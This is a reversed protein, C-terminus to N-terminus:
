HAPPLALVSCSDHTVRRSVSNFAHLGGLRRSGIVVITAKTSRVASLIVAAPHGPVILSDSSHLQSLSKVQAQIRHPHMRSEPGLAHVLTIPADQDLALSAAMSVIEDSGELGDSAVMLRRGQLPPKFSARVFLTPTTFHRLTVSSVGGVLMDGFWSTAPGGLALLDFGAARELIVKVPPHGPDILTAAPVGADDAIRRAGDLVRSVRAPGIAATAHVGSGAAATVALLTLSGEPGALCAAMRVAATSARTGDVACLVNAFLPARAPGPM